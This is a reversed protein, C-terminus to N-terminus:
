APCASVMPSIGLWKGTVDAPGSVTPGNRRTGRGREATLRVLRASGSPKVLMDCFMLSVQKFFSVCVCVVILCAVTVDEM